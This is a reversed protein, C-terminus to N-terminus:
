GEKSKFSDTLFASFRHSIKNIYKNSVKFQSLVEKTIMSVNDMNIRDGSNSSPPRTPWFTM